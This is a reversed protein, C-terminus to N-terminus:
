GSDYIMEPFETLIKSVMVCFVRVCQKYLSLNTVSKVGKQISMEFGKRGFINVLLDLRM